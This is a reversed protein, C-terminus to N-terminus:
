NNESLKQQVKEHKKYLIIVGFSKYVKLNLVRQTIWMLLFMMDISELYNLNLPM